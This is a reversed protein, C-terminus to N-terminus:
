PRRRPRRKKKKEKEWWPWLWLQFRNWELENGGAVPRAPFGRNRHNIITQASIPIGFEHARRLAEAEPIWEEPIPEGGTGRHHERERRRFEARPIVEPPMQRGRYLEVDDKLLDEPPIGPGYAGIYDIDRVWWQGCRPCLRLSRDFELGCEQCAIPDAM